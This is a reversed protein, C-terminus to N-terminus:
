IDDRFTFVHTAVSLSWGSPLETPESGVMEWADAGPAAVFTGAPTGADRVSVRGDVVSVHAHVRSVQDDRLVIPSALGQRVSEDSLPERGIVYSRDLPYIAGGEVATLSGVRRAVEVTPNGPRAAPVVGPPRTLGEYVFTRRGVAGHEGPRIVRPQGPILRDWAGSTENWLHTGNTSGRDILHVEPAALRVEAHVRSVTDAADDLAIPRASGAVVSEDIEPERGLVYDEDLGFASGDDFVLLGLSMRQDRPDPAPLAAPEASVAEEVAEAPEAAAAAVGSEDVAAPASAAPREVGDVPLPPRPEVGEASLPFLEFETAVVPAVQRATATVRLWGGPVVGAELRLPSSGPRASGAPTILVADATAPVIRDTWTVSSAGSLVEETGAATVAAEVPGHLLVLWGDDLAAIAGFAPTEDDGTVLAALRQALPRGPPGDAAAVDRVLDVLREAADGDVVFLAVDGVAAVVGSGSGLEITPWDRPM